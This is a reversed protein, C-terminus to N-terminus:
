WSGDLYGGQKKKVNGKVENLLAGQRDEDVLTMLGKEVDNDSFFQDEVEIEYDVLANGIACVDYKKSM